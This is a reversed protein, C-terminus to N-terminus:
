NKAICNATQNELNRTDNTLIQGLKQYFPM